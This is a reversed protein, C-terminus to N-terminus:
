SDNNAEGLNGIVEGEPDYVNGKSPNVGYRDKAGSM